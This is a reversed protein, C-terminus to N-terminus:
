AAEPALASRAALEAAIEGIVEACYERANEPEPWIRKNHPADLEAAWGEYRRLLARLRDPTCLNFGRRGAFPSPTSPDHVM